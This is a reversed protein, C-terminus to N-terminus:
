HTVRDQKFQVVLGIAVRNDVFTFTPPLSGYQHKIEFGTYTAFMFQIDNELYHRTNSTLEPIPSSTHQRTELFLENTTPIRATYTSSITINKFRLVNPVIVYASVSPMGRCFGGLGTNNAVAFDDRFNNGVEAGLSLDTGVLVLPALYPHGNIAKQEKFLKQFNLSYKPASVVNMANAKKDMQMGVFDWQFSSRSTGTWKYGVSWSFSDPDATPRNDTKVQGSGFLSHDGREFFAYKLSSDISYSPRAGVSPTVTGSIYVAADNRTKAPEIVPALKPTARSLTAYPANAGGFTVDIRSYESVSHAFHIDVRGRTTFLKEEACVQTVDSDLVQPRGRKDYLVVHWPNEAQSVNCSFRVESASISVPTDFVVYLVQIDASSGPWVGNIKLDGGLMVQKGLAFVMTLLLLKNLM